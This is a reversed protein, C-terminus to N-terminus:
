EIAELSDRYMRHRLLVAAKGAWASAEEPNKELIKEYVALAKDLRGYSTERAKSTSKGATKGKRDEKGTKESWGTKKIRDAKETRDAKRKSNKEM